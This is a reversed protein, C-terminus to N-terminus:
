DNKEQEKEILPQGNYVPITFTFTSGEGLSSHSWIDGGFGEIIKRCIALGMGTGNYENKAHLRRFPEFIRESYEQKMGIGNDKVSIEWLGEKEEANIVVKPQTGSIQYKISNGVLNQIVRMLRIPNAHVIPLKDFSIIADSSDISDKLNDRVMGMIQNLDVDKLNEAEQGVRSYELLDKVLDQMREAGDSAFNIYMKAKDDLQESYSKELLKTFNTVMRLPEQLDHSAVYAFRELEINSRLIEAEAEKQESINSMFCHHGTFKGDDDYRSIMTVRKHFISGDKRIGRPEGVVKGTDIMFKYADDMMEHDDQLVTIGWEKGVLEEPTYGCTGAYAENLYIYRGEPDIKSVGEVAHEMASSLERVEKTQREVITEIVQRHRILQIFTYTIFFTFVLCGLLVTWPLWSSANKISELLPFAQIRWTRGAVNIDTSSLLNPHIADERLSGYISEPNNIDTIDQIFIDTNQARNGLAHKIADDLRIVTTTFGKLHQDMNHMDQHGDTASHGSEYVPNFILIGKQKTKEQVIIIPATAAPRGIDGAKNLANLRKSNSALDFGLAPKNGKMPEIYTIPFYLKRKLAKIINGEKDLETIKFGPYGNLSLKEEYSNREADSIKPVWELSQINNHGKLIPRVFTSFEKRDVNESADFFGKLSNLIELHDKIYREISLINTRNEALIEQETQQKQLNKLILHGSISASIGIIGILLPMIFARGIIKSDLIENEENNAFARYGLLTFLIFSIALGVFLIGLIASRLKNQAQIIPTDDSIYTLEINHTIANTSVERPLKISDTNTKVVVDGQKLKFAGGERITQESFLATLPATIEASLVGENNGLYTVPVSIVFRFDEGEQELLQFNYSQNDKIIRNIWSANPTFDGQIDRDTQYIIEGAINQLVLRSKEGAIAFNDVLDIFDPNDSKSLLSASTIVPFKTLDTLTIRHNDVFRKFLETEIELTVKNDVVHQNVLSNNIKPVIIFATLLSIILFFGILFAAILRLIPQNEKKFISSSQEIM